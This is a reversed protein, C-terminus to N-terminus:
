KTQCQPPRKIYGNMLINPSIKIILIMGVRYSPEDTLFRNTTSGRAYLYESKSPHPIPCYIASFWQLVQM